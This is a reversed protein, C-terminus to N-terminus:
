FGESKRFIRLCHVFWIQGTVVTIYCPISAIRCFSSDGRKCNAAITWKILRQHVGSFIYTLTLIKGRAFLCSFPDVYVFPPVRGRGSSVLSLTAVSAVLVVPLRVDFGLCCVVPSTSSNSSSCHVGTQWSTTWTHLVIYETNDVSTITSSYSFSRSFAM